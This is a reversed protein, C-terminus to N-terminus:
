YDHGVLPSPVHVVQERGDRCPARNFGVEPQAPVSCAYEVGSLRNLYGQNSYYLVPRVGGRELNYNEDVVECNRHLKEIFREGVARDTLIYNQQQSESKVLYTWTSGPELPFFALQPTLRARYYLLDGIVGVLLVLILISSIVYSRKM